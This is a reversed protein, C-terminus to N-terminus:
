KEGPKVNFAMLHGKLGAFKYEVVGFAPGKEMGLKYFLKLSQGEAGSQFDEKELALSQLKGTEALLKELGPRLADLPMKTQLAPHMMAFAKDPQGELAFRLFEEGQKRYLDTNPLSKFWGPAILDSTVNFKVIQDGHFSIESKATGKEFNVTGSSEVLAVNNEQKAETHFDTKSLGQCKGLKENVENIWAQLVPEDIEARLAPHMLALVDAAKGSNVAAFFKDQYATGASMAWFLLGGCLVLVVLFVVGLIALIRTAM